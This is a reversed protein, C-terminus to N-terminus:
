HVSPERANRAPLEADAAVSLDEDITVV